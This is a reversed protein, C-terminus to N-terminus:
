HDAMTTEEDGRLCGLRWGALRGRFLGERALALLAAGRAHCRM